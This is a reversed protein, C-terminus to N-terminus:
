GTPSIINRDILEKIIDASKRLRKAPDQMNARLSGYGLGCVGFSIQSVSAYVVMGLPSFSLEFSSVAANRGKRKRPPLPVNLSALLNRDIELMGRFRLELVPYAPNDDLHDQLWDNAIGLDVRNSLDIKLPGIRMENLVTVWELFSFM